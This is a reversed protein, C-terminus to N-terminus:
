VSSRYLDTGCSGEVSDVQHYFPAMCGLVKVRAPFLEPNRCQQCRGFHDEFRDSSRRKGRKRKASCSYRTLPQCTSSGPAIGLNPTLCIRICANQYAPAQGSLEHHSDVM